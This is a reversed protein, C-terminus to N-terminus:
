PMVHFAAGEYKYTGSLKARVTDREAASATYFHTGNKKNFFRYVAVAGKAPTASVKYAAGEYTFISSLRARVDDREAASATYFHSGKKKNFFRYLPASNAPDATDLVYSTGEFRYTGSMTTHVIYRENSSATYFHSGNKKNFFRFVPRVAPEAVPDGFRALYVNWFSTNGAISPNYVYLKYTALSATKVGSPTYGNSLGPTWRPVTSGNKREGYGDLVRAGHWIQNGFGPYKNATGSSCGAGIARALTTSTLSTRTLLSQEKQLLALMVKPSIHWQQCAEWIIQAASKKVGDTDPTKNVNVNGPTPTIVKDYDSTVLTKLPGPQANLYAQIQAVTMSDYARLNGDSLILNPPAAFANSALSLVILTAGLAVALSRVYRRTPHRRTPWGAPRPSIRM